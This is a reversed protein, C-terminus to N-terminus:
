SQFGHARRSVSNQVLRVIESRVGVPGQYYVKTRNNNESWTEIESPVDEIAHPGEAAFLGLCVIADVAEALRSLEQAISPSQELFAVGLNQTKAIEGLQDRQYYAAEASASNKESGHAILLFATKGISLENEYVCEKAMQNLIEALEPDVGLSDCQYIQHTEDLYKFDELAFLQPIRKKVFYGESMFFPLLFSEGAPIIPKAAEDMLYYTQVKGFRPSLRLTEAHEEIAIKARESTTSGHGILILTPRSPQM